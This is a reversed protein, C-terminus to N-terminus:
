DAERNWAKPRPKAISVETISRLDPIAALKDRRKKRRAYRRFRGRCDDCYLYGKPQKTIECDPCIGAEALKRRKENQKKRIRERNKLYWEQRYKKLLRVCNDCDRKTPNSLPSRGCDPCKPHKRRAM